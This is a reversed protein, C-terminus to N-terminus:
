EDSQEYNTGTSQSLSCLVTTMGLALLIEHRLHGDVVEYCGGQDYVGLPKILEATPNDDRM